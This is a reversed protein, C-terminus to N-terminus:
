EHWSPPAHCGMFEELERNAGAFRELLRKRMTDDLPTLQQKLTQVRRRVAFNLVSLPLKLGARISSRIGPPIHNLIASVAPTRLSDKLTGVDRTAMRSGFPNAM